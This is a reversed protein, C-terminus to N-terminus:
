DGGLVMDLMGVEVAQDLILQLPGERGRYVRGGLRCGEDWADSSWCIDHGCELLHRVKNEM